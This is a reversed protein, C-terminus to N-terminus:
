RRKHNWEKTLCHQGKYKIVQIRAEIRHMEAEAQRRKHRFQRLTSSNMEEAEMEIPSMDRPQTYYVSEEM